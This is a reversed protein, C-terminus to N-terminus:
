VTNFNRVTMRYTEQVIKQIKRVTFDKSEIKSKSLAFSLFIPGSNSSSSECIAFVPLVSYSCKNVVYFYINFASKQSDRNITKYEM